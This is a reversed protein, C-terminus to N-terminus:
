VHLVSGDFCQPPHGAAHVDPGFSFAHLHRCSTLARIYFSLKLVLLLICVCFYNSHIVSVSCFLRRQQFMVQLRNVIVIFLAPAKHLILPPATVASRRWRTQVSPAPRVGRSSPTMSQTISPSTSIQKTFCSNLAVATTSTKLERHFLFVSQLFSSSLTLSQPKFTEM